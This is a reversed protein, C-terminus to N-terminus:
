PVCRGDNVKGHSKDGYQEKYQDALKYLEEFDTSMDVPQDGRFCVGEPWGKTSIGEGLYLKEVRRVTEKYNGMTILGQKTQSEWYKKFQGFWKKDVNNAHARRIEDSVSEWDDMQKKVSAMRSKKEPPLISAATENTVSSKTGGGGAVSSTTADKVTMMSARRPMVTRASRRTPEVNVATSRRRKKKKNKRKELEDDNSSKTTTKWPPPQALGLRALHRQNVLVNANRMEEYTEYYLGDKARHSHTESPETAM